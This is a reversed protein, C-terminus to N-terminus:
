NKTKDRRSPYRMCEAVRRWSFKELIKKSCKSWIYREASRRIPAMITGVNKRYSTPKCYHADKEGDHPLSLLHGLEHVAIQIGDFNGDDNIYAANNKKSCIGAMFARGGVSGTELKSMTVTADFNKFDRSDRAFDESSFYNGANDLLRQTDLKSLDAQKRSEYIYRLVYEDQEIIIGTVVVKVRPNSLRTFRLNVANWFISLYKVIEAVDKNFLKFYNSEVVVLLKPYIIKLPEDLLDYDEIYNTSTMFDDVNEVRENVNHDNIERSGDWWKEQVSRAVNTTSSEGFVGDYYISPREDYKYYALMIAMNKFDKFYSGEIRTQEDHPKYFHYYPPRIRNGAVVWVQLNDLIVNHELPTLKLSTKKGEVELEVLRTHRKSRIHKQFGSREVTNNFIAIGPVDSSFKISSNKYEATNFGPYN